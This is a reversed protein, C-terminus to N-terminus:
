IPVINVKANAPVKMEAMTSPSNRHSHVRIGSSPKLIENTSAIETPAVKDAVSGTVIRAMKLM